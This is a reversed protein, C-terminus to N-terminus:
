FEGPLMFGYRKLVSRGKEGKVYAAFDMALGVDKAGRLIGLSQSIPNHLAGDIAKYTIEPVGAVSLAVIGARANGTQVFQLAQRINEGYVLRGKVADWIGEAKLAEMAARGYPAHEPNAIAIPGVDPMLLDKLGTASIGSSKNVALVIRGRAYVGSTGPLVFGDKELGDMYGADASLFVDFPAGERIQKSLMGTSGFALVAEAGTEAEFGSAIEKLAYSLDSAAAVVIKRNKAHVGSPWLVICLLVFLPISTCALKLCPVPHKALVVKVPIKGQPAIELGILRM